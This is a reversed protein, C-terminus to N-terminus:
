WFGFLSAFGSCFNKIGDSVTSAVNKISSSVKEAVKMAGDRIKQVGKVVTEGVKSGAMYGITGGVFGGIATGVPGFVTGVAAGIATGKGMTALGAVTSVTTQEIKEVGEKFSLEGSMMKGVVKVDEVAVHAINAITGAPTGKPIVTIIEKEVGVKLAGAAAAKIGFDAGSVLATEVVEEAEIEEGNWLKQAVDFGVGIAAGQLAAYGAQKGIGFALDKAAYENWNLENWNDSQVEDQMQKAREKTLPNSTTGDPAEIVTACKKQIGNEQGEPVLKGSGRYDGREFAKATAGADKCYKCQYRKVIRGGAEKDRIVIDVSNKGYRKGKPEPVEAYYRNRGAAKANMNFTQAHYQEAIFGDLSPNQNITGAQTTIKNYLADNATKLADDLSTLYKAAEQASMASVAKNATSAFWSEKSRGDSVAKSLSAQNEEDVKLTTIIENVFGIIEEPQRDPLQEQMKMSLWEEVPKDRNAAYCEVFETLIPKLEKCEDKILIPAHEEDLLLVGMEKEEM